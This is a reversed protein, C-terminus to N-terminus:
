EDNARREEVFARIARRAASLRKNAAELSIGLRRATEDITLGFLCRLMIVSRQSDPLSDIFNVVEDRSARDFLADELSTNDEPESEYLDACAAKNRRAFMDAAINRVIVGAYAARSEPPIDFFSEPKDAIRAFVEQVADEADAANHLKSLAIYYLRNKNDAYFEALASRQEDSELLALVASIM